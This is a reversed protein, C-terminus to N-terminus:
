KSYSIGTSISRVNVKVNGWKQDDYASQLEDEENTMKVNRSHHYKGRAWNTDVAYVQEGVVDQAL